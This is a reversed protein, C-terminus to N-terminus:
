FEGSAVYVKQVLDKASVVRKAPDFVLHLHRSGTGVDRMLAEAVGETHPAHFPGPGHTEVSASTM